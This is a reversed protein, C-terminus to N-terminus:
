LRAWILMRLEAAVEAQPRGADIVRASSNAWDAEWIETSRERVFDPDDATKRRVAIQPDVRLVVLLDPPSIREYYHQERRIILRTLPNAARPRLLGGAHPRQELMSVFRECQPGDMLRVQHVPSRDFLVIGGKAANRRAKVYTQYRDRATCVERVLWPFGPSVPSKQDLTERLSSELPYLGLLQGAKLVSRVAITTPSWAPKGMHVRTVDFTKAFSGCIAEIATSKGAGDGGVLAVTVGGNQPHYKPTSRVVRRRIAYFGKRWFKLYTDVLLPRHANARLAMQLQQGARIRLWVPCGPLLARVCRAFLAAGVAPLHEKVLEKVRARDIRELLYALERRESAKLNGEGFLMVDWTSHKLVMRVVFVIFEFEPAPVPFLDDQLVSALYADEIPLRYNKTLDHGMSLQYHAHVHALKGSQEDYGFYDLVGPMEKEVPAKVQKFGLRFLIATFRGADARSILLDLDNLGSASRDLANNSKWHCYVIEEADLTECLQAVLALAPSAAAAGSQPLSVLDKYAGNEVTPSPATLPFSPHMLQKRRTLLPAMTALAVHEDV